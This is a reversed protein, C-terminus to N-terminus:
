VKRMRLRFTASCDSCQMAWPCNWCGGGHVESVGDGDPELFNPGVFEPREQRHEPDDEANGAEDAHARQDFPHFIAHPFGEDGDPTQLFDSDFLLVDGGGLLVEGILRLAHDANHLLLMFGASVSLAAILGLLATYVLGRHQRFSRWAERLYFIHM